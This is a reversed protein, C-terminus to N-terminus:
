AESPVPVGYDSVAEFLATLAAREEASLEPRWIEFLLITRDAPGDNWAEHEISDDFAWARGTEVARTHNGVRLRCGGPVVLPLHVILRTNYQGHHPPIHTGPKLRSFLIMPSQGRIYPIPAARVAAMTMPFREAVGPKVAGLETLHMASWDPKDLLPHTRGERRAVRQVYPSFEHAEAAALEGRIADTAAELADFWPQRPYFAIQPLGPYYFAKPQQVHPVARGLLIALSEQLAVPAREVAHGAEGLRRELYRGYDRYKQALWQEARRLMPPLDPMMPAGPEAAALAARYHGIARGEDGARLSWDGRMLNARVNGPEIALSRTLSEDEGAEDGLSRCAQAILLWPQAGLAAAERLLPLARAADGVQLRAIAAQVLSEASGMQTAM